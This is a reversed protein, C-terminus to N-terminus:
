PRSWEPPPAQNLAMEFQARKDRNSVSDDLDVAGMVGPEGFPPPATPVGPVEQCEEVVQRPPRM